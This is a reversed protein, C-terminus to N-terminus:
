PYEPVVLEGGATPITLRRIGPAGGVLRLGETDGGLWLRIQELDGGLELETIGSAGIGADGGFVEDRDSWSIFCPMGQTIAENVGALRWSATTGDPRAREGPIPTLSLRACASDFDDPEVMLGGLVDGAVTTQQIWQGLPHAAARPPDVVGIIELYPGGLPM